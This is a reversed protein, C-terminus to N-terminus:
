GKGEKKTKKPIKPPESNIVPKLKGSETTLM